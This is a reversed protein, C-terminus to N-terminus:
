FDIDSLIKILAETYVPDKISHPASVVEIPEVNFDKASKKVREVLYPVKSKELEGYTFIIKVGASKAQRVLVQASYQRLDALRKKGFRMGRIYAAETAIDEQFYPSLSALLVLDPRLENATILAVMAGFSNGVVINTDSKQEKYLQRFQQCFQSVTTFRWSIDVPVVRYGLVELGDRLPKFAVDTATRKTNYGNILFLTAM